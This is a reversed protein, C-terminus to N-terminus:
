HLSVQFGDDLRQLAQRHICWEEGSDMKLTLSIPRVELVVGNFTGNWLTAKLRDGVQFDTYAPPPPNGPYGNLTGSM